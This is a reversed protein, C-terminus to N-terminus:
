ILVNKKTTLIQLEQLKSKNWLQSNNPHESHFWEWKERADDRFYGKIEIYQYIFPGSLIFVDLRYTRSDPMVFPNPQWKYDYRNINLWEVVAAEYSGVCILETNNKWHYKISKRNSSRATKDQILPHKMAHSVGYHALATHQQSIIQKEKTRSPHGTRGRIVERPVAIFRGREYDNFECSSLWGCYMNEVITIKNGCYEYLRKIVENLSIRRKDGIIKYGRQPHGRGQLVAYPKAFWKGYEFDVFACPTTQDVYTEKILTVIKGHVNYLRKQVNDVSIRKSLRAREPHQNKKGRIINNPIAKWEGFDRDVFVCLTQTNIYSEELVTVTGHHTDILRRKIDDITLKFGKPM